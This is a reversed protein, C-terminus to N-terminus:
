MIVKVTHVKGDCHPNIITGRIEKEDVIVKKVGSQVHDPNKITIEYTAGRFPRKLYCQTWHEPLCPDIELGAFTPRIGLMWQTAAILMWPTTGTNWTFEGRGFDTPHKPGIVYEAFVYPEAKYHDPNQAKVQNMPLIKNFTNYAKNGRKMMCDAVIKFACAHSFVAANEKTGPAFATVRGIGHNYETYTPTFMLPGYPTDLQEDIIKLIQQAREEDAVESLIAWTQSNLPIKGESNQSAGIKLGNDNIAAIYWNGDWGITNILNRLHKFLSDM